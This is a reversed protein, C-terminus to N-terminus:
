RQGHPTFGPLFPDSAHTYCILHYLFVKHSTKNNNPAHLLLKAVILPRLFLDACVCGGFRFRPLGRFCSELTIVVAVTAEETSALSVIVVTVAADGGAVRLPRPLGRLTAGGVVSPQVAFFGKIRSTVSLGRGGRNLGVVIAACSGFNVNGLGLGLKVRKLYKARHSACVFNM